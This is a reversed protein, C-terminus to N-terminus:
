NGQKKEPDKVMAENLIKIWLAYGRDNPHFKDESFLSPDRAMTPGTMEALPVWLAQPFSRVVKEIDNNVRRTEIGAVTRLPQLFRPCSGVDGSGPVIVRLKPNSNTLDSLIRRMDTKINEDSTFHVVDNGGVSLLVIDPKARIAEPLQRAILDHILAGSVGLNILTVDHSEALHQATGMTISNNFAAGRGAATSDGMVVYLLKPGAGKIAVPASSPNQFKIMPQRFALWTEFALVAALAVLLGVCVTIVQIAIL